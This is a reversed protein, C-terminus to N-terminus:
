VGTFGNSIVGMDEDIFGWDEENNIYEAESALKLEKM